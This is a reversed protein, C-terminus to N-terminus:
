EEDKNEEVLLNERQEKLVTGRYWTFYLIVTTIISIVASIVTQRYLHGVIYISCMYYSHLAVTIVVSNFVVLSLSDAQQKHQQRSMGLRSYVGGWFGFPRIRRYFEDICEPKVEETMLSGIVCGVGSVLMCVLTMAYDPLPFQPFLMLISVILGAFFGIMFGWGNVRWWFWRLINPLIVSVGLGSMIWSWLGNLTSSTYSIIGVSIGALVILVTSVYSCVVLKKNNDKDKIMPQIIDRVMMSASTNILSSITSMFGAVLGAVILGTLGVTAYKNLVMPLLQDAKGPDIDAFAYLGLFAIAATFLWRPILVINWAACLKAADATNRAALIRQEGFGGATVTLCLIAGILMRSMAIVRFNEYEPVTTKEPIGLSVWESFNDVGAFFHASDIEKYALVALAIGVISLLVSQIFDTIIVGKFGGLVVYIATLSTIVVATTLPPSNYVESFEAIVVFAMGIVCASGLIGLLAYATRAYVAGRGDGFRLHLLEAATMVRSRRIWIAVYSMWVAPVIFGWAWHIWFSKMGLLFLVSIQWVTGCLSFNSASGSFALMYWPIDKDGLFYSQLSKSSSKQYHIGLGIVILFYAIIIAIDILSM